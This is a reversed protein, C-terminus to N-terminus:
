GRVPTATSAQWARVIDVVAATEPETLRQVPDAMRASPLLGLHVMATKFAGIGRADASRGSAVSAIGMLQALRDQEAVAASWDGACAARWLRVYGAADVNGLGPVLGDAGILAAADCVVEHGTMLALPSGAARNALVLQRFGVDDASSDKVGVLVGETGLTILTPVTLKVHVRVPVDYAILPQEVAAHIRRFHDAIEAPDNIAYFPGTAVIGDVGAGEATRAQEIVRAATTEICGALVPLRHDAAGVITTLVDRRQTDTLYASEASSGLAFLGNVGACILHDVLAALTDHDVDGTDAFPTIVPLIVGRPWAPRGSHGDTSASFPAPSPVTTM